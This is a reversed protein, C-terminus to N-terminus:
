SQEVVEVLSGLRDALEVKVVLGDFRRAYDVKRAHSLHLAFFLKWELFIRFEADTRTVGWCHQICNSIWFSSKTTSCMAATVRGHDQIARSEIFHQELFKGLVFDKIAFPDLGNLM